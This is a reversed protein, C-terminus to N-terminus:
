IQPPLADLLADLDDTITRTLEALETLYGGGNSSHQTGTQGYSRGAPNPVGAGFVARGPSLRPMRPQRGPQWGRRGPGLVARRDHGLGQGFRFDLDSGARGLTIRAAPRSAPGPPSPRWPGPWGAQWGGREGTPQWGQAVAAGPGVAM